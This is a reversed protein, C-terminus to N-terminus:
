RWRLQCTANTQDNNYIIIEVVHIYLNGVILKSAALSTVSSYM